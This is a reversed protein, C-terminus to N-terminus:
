KGAPAANDATKRIWGRESDFSWWGAPAQRLWEAAFQDETYAIWALLSQGGHGVAESVARYLFQRDLNEARVLTKLETAKGEAARIAVYGNDTLGLRGAALEARLQPQRAQIRQLPAMIDIGAWPLPKGPLGYVQAVVRDAEIQTGLAAYTFLRGGTTECAALLLAAVALLLARLGNM